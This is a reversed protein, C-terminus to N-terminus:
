ATRRIPDSQDTPPLGQRASARAARTLRPLPRHAAVPIQHRTGIHKLVRACGEVTGGAWLLEELGEAADLYFADLAARTIETATMSARCSACLLVDGHRCGLRAQLAEQLVGSVNVGPLEARVRAALEDPITVNVRKVV